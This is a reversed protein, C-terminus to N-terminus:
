HSAAYNLFNKVKKMTTNLPNEKELAIANLAALMTIDVAISYYLFMTKMQQLFKISENLKPAEDEPETYHQQAGYNPPIHQYM